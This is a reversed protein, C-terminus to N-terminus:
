AARPLPLAQRYVTQLEAGWAAPSPALTAARAHGAESMTKITTDNRL